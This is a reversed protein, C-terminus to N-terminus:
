RMACLAYPLNAFRLGGVGICWSPPNRRLRGRAACRASSVRPIRHMRRRWGWQEVRTYFTRESIGLLACIDHVPVRTHEYLRREEAMTEPSIYKPPVPM